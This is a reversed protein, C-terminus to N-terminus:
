GAQRLRYRGSDADLHFEVFSQIAQACARRDYRALHGDEWCEPNTREVLALHRLAGNELRIGGRKQLPPMESLCNHCFIGGEGPLFFGGEQGMERGCKGCQGFRPAYGLLAALRLRFYQPVLISADERMELYDRLEEVLQFCPNACEADIEMHQLFSICNAALGMNRWNSRLNRPAKVLSAEQLAFYGSKFSSKVHCSLINFNDLCGCFRRRSKVAGFAFLTLLGHRSALVRLWAHAENFHGMRLVIADDTWESM